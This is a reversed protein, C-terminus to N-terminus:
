KGDFVALNVRDQTLDLGLARAVEQQAAALAQKDQLQDKAHHALVLDNLRADGSHTAARRLFRSGHDILAPTLQKQADQALSSLARGVLDEDLPFQLPHPAIYLEPVGPVRHESRQFDEHSAEGRIPAEVWPQARSSDTMRLSAEIRAIRRFFQESYAYEAHVPQEVQPPTQALLSRTHALEAAIRDRDASVSALDSQTRQADREADDHARDLERVSRDHGRQFRLQDTIATARARQQQADQLDSQLSRIQRRVRVRDAELMRRQSADQTQAIRSQLQALDREADNFQRQVRSVRRSAEDASAEADRYRQETDAQSQRARQEARALHQEHRSAQAASQSAVVVAGDLQQLQLTLDESRQVLQVFRPNPVLDLRAVYTQRRTEVSGPQTTVSPVGVRLLLSSLLSPSEAVGDVLDVRRPGAFVALVSRLAPLFRATLLPDGEVRLALPYRLEPELVPQTEPSVLAPASPVSAAATATGVRLTRAQDQLLLATKYHAWALGPLRLRLAHESAQKERQVLMTLLESGRRRFPESRLPDSPMDAASWLEAARTLVRVAVSYRRAQLATSATQDLVTSFSAQASQWHTQAAHNGRDLRVAEHLSALAAEHQQAQLQRQGQEDLQQSRLMDSAQQAFVPLEPFTPSLPLLSQLTAAAKALDRRALLAEKASELQAAAQSRHANLKSYLSRADAHDPLDTLVQECRQLARNLDGRNGHQAADALWTAARSERALQLKKQYSAAGPRRQTAERYEHVASEFDQRSMAEDGRQAAYYAACGLQQLALALAGVQLWSRLRPAALASHTVREIQM